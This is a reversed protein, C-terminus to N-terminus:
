GPRPVHRFARISFLPALRRWGFAYNTMMCNTTLSDGFAIMLAERAAAPQQTIAESLLLLHLLQRSNFLQSYTRYVYRSSNAHDRDSKKREPIRRIPMTNSDATDQDTEFLAAIPPRLGM